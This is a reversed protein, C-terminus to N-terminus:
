WLVEKMVKQCWPELMRQSNGLNSVLVHVGPRQLGPPLLNWQEVKPPWVALRKLLDIKPLPGQMERCLAWTGSLQAAPIGWLFVLLLGRFWCLSDRSCAAVGYVEKFSLLRVDKESFLSIEQVASKQTESGQCLATIVHVWVSYPWTKVQTQAMKNNNVM